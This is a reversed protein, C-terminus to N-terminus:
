HGLIMGGALNARIELRPYHGDQVTANEPSRSKSVSKYEAISVSVM